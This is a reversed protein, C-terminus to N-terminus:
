WSRKGVALVGRDDRARDPPDSVAHRDDRRERLLREISLARGRSFAILGTAVALGGGALALQIGRSNKVLLSEEGSSARTQRQQSPISTLLPLTALALVAAATGARSGTVLIVAVMLALLFGATLYRQRRSAWQPFGHGSQAMGTVVPILCALFVAQHNRNAFLGVALGDSTREYTYLPGSPEGLIQLLGLVCSALGIWLLMALLTDLERPSRALSLFGACLPLALSWLANWTAGPTLTLPRWIEGLGAVRDIEVLIQRGPLRSWVEPPLPVLQSVVLLVTVTALAVIGRNVRVQAPKLRYLAYGLAMISLPRLVVLQWADGRSSGGLLFALLVIALLVVTEQTSALGALARAHRRPQGSQWLAPQRSLARRVM